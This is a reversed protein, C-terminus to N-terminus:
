VLAANTRMGTQLHPPAHLGKWQSPSQQWEELMHLMQPTWAWSWRRAPMRAAVNVSFLTIQTVKGHHHGLVKLAQGLAAEAWRPTSYMGATGPDHSEGATAVGFEPIVVPRHDFRKLVRQLLPMVHHINAPTLYLDFGIADWQSVDPLYHDFDEASDGAFVIKFQIGDRQGLRRLLQATSAFRKKYESFAAACHRRGHVTGDDTGYASTSPESAIRIYLRSGAFGGAHLATVLEKVLVPDTTELGIFPRGGMAHLERLENVTWSNFNLGKRETGVFRGGYYMLVDCRSKRDALWHQIDALYVEPTFHAGDLLGKGTRAIPFRAQPALTGDQVSQVWVDTQFVGIRLWEPRKPIGTWGLVPALQVPPGGYLFHASYFCFALSWLARCRMWPNM